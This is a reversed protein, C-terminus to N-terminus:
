FVFFLAFARSTTTRKSDPSSGLIGSDFLSGDICGAVATYRPLRKGLRGLM